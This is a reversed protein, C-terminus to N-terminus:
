ARAPQLKAIIGVIEINPVLLGATTWLYNANSFFYKANM